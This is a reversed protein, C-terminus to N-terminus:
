ENPEEAPEAAVPPVEGSDIFTAYLEATRVVQHDSFGRMNKVTEVALGLARARLHRDGTPSADFEVEGSM